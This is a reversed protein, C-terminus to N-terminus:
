VLGRAPCWTQDFESFGDSDLGGRAPRLSTAAMASMRRTSNGTVWALGAWVAGPGRSRSGRRAADQRRYSTRHLECLAGAQDPTLRAELGANVLGTGKPNATALLDPLLPLTSMCAYSNVGGCLRYATFSRLGERCMNRMIYIINFLTKHKQRGTETGVKFLRRESRGQRAACAPHGRLSSKRRCDAIGSEVQLKRGTCELSDPLERRM